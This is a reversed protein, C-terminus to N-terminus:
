FGCGFVPAASPMPAGGTRVAAVIASAGPNAGPHGRGGTIGGQYVLAGDPRYLRVEGSTHFDFRQLEERMPVAITRVGPLRTADRFLDSDRAPVGPITDDFLAIVDLPRGQLETLIGALEAVTARSCPCEPHLGLVLTFRGSERALATSEPWAAAPAGSAGPTYSYDAMWKMGAVAAAFWASFGATLLVKKLLPSM